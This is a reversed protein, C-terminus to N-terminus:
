LSSCGSLFVVLSLLDEGTEGVAEFSNDFSGGGNFVVAIQDDLVVGSPPEPDEDSESLWGLLVFLGPRRLRHGLWVFFFLQQSFRDLRELGLDGLLYVRRSRLGSRLFVGFPRVVRRLKM